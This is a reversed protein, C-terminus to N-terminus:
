AALRKRVALPEVAGHRVAVIEAMIALAIEEPYRGGLNLGIPAHIRELNSEPVGLERLAELRNAHTQRSGLAGVYCAPSALATQLAPNDLKDDHSLCVVYTAPDPQLKELATAPWDVILEDAHPFRESTAFASRADIVITRFNLARAITILPIAIHVAGVIVLRPPPILVDIFIEVGAQGAAEVILAPAQRAWCQRAAAAARANFQATGLNGQQRGDPWLLLRRGTEPGGVVTALAAMQKKKLCHEIEAEIEEWGPAQLSEVYVQISGGCALGVEWAERDAIGYSLRRPLGNKLVQQAEEYIAGEVCGGSVSGAIDGDSTVAMKSGCPRLSSGEVAIITALAVPKGAQRWRQIEPWIERM